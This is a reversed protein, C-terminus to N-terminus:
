EEAPLEVKFVAGQSKGMDPRDEVWARGEYRKSLMTVIHLGLGSGKRNQACSFRDFVKAKMDNPVGPGHDAISVIWTPSTDTGGSAIDIELRLPDSQDYKVANTLINAFLEKMLEDALVFYRNAEVEHSIEMAREMHYMRINRISDLLVAGLDMRALRVDGWTLRSMTRVDSSLRSVNLVQGAIKNLIAEQSPAASGVRLLDLYGLIAQNFNKIDHSLLDTYFEASTRSDKQNRFLKANEIAIGALSAYIEIIEITEPDPIRDDRPQLIELYAMPVGDRGYIITDMYDLEHWYGAGKRPLRLPDPDPHYAEDGPALRASEAPMYYTVRGVKKRWKIYPDPRLGKATPDILYLIRETPYELSKIRRASEESYGYVAQVTFAKREDNRVGITMRKLGLLQALMKLLDDLLVELDRVYLIESTLDFIRSLQEMRQGSLRLAAERESSLRANELAVEALSAFIEMTELTEMDPLRGEVPVSPYIVGVIRGSSDHLSFALCDGVKMATGESPPLTSSRNIAEQSVFGERQTQSLDEFRTLYVTRGIRRDVSLDELVTEPPVARMMAKRVQEEPYGFLATWRFQGSSEDYTLLTAREFGFLTSVSSLLRDYLRGLDRESVITSAIALVDELLDTKQLMRQSIRETESDELTLTVATSALEALLEIGGLDDPGPVRGGVPGRIAILFPATAGSPRVVVVDDLEWTCARAEDDNCPGAASSPNARRWEDARSFYASGTIRDAEDILVDCRDLMSETVDPPVPEAHGDFWRLGRNMGASAINPSRPLFILDNLSYLDAAASLISEVSQALPRSAVMERLITQVRAAVGNRSSPAARGLADRDSEGAKV